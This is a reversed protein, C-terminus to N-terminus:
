RGEGEAALLSSFWSGAEGRSVGHAYLEIMYQQSFLEEWENDFEPGIFTVNFDVGNTRAFQQMALVSARDHASLVTDLARGIIEFTNPKVLEFEPRPRGNLIVYIQEQGPTGVGNGDALFSEPLALFGATAAGDVHMEAFQSDGDTADILVPPFLGPVSASALLVQRFLALRSPAQSAAIAGMDWIVGRAADLNTTQVLLRRGKTHEQAVAALLKEDINQAILDALPTTDAFSPQTLLGVIGRQRYIDQRSIGTYFQRLREDYTPGLFAFPAILAGTSVGSVITFHPREGSDSWGKLFGAAYAGDDAGGSLALLTAPQETGQQAEMEIRMANFEAAPADAWYRVESYGPLQAQEAQLPTREIRDPWTACGGLALALPLLLSAFRRM